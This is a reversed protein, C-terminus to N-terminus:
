VGQASPGQVPAGRYRLFPVPFHLSLRRIRGGRVSLMWLVAPPCHDPDDPPNILENEWLTIGPSAVTRIVRQRIGAELDRDMSRLLLDRGGREGMGGRLEVAPDWREAVVDAFAGRAAAELTEEGERHRAATLAAVDDHARDAGALLSRAMKAKAQNLRSRVTGVPVGCAAAMQEYSTVGSFYRLMLVMQLSDSLDGIADWVWDRLAHGELVQEPTPDKSPLASAEALAADPVARLRMRCGNRVIMRLWPGVAGPDRVDGIRRLATLAADQVADEADPGFGLLAVAVARMGAQHRALLVGLAATDGLQAMRTLEGDALQDVPM